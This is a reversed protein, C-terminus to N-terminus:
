GAAQGQLKTGQCPLAEREQFPIGLRGPKLTGLLGLLKIEPYNRCLKKQIKGQKPIEQPKKAQGQKRTEPLAKAKGQM